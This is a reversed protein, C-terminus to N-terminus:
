RSCTVTVICIPYFWDFEINSGLNEVHLERYIRKLLLPVPVEPLQLSDHYPEPCLTFLSSLYNTERGPCQKLTHHLLHIPFHVFLCLIYYVDEVSCLISVRVTELVRNIKTIDVLYEHYHTNQSFHCWHCTWKCLCFYIDHYSIAMNDWTEFEVFRSM